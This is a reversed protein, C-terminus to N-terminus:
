PLSARRASCQGRQNLSAGRSPIGHCSWYRKKGPLPGIQRQVGQRLLGGVPAIVAEFQGAPAIVEFNTARKTLIAIQLRPMVDQGFVAQLTEGDGVVENALRDTVANVRAVLVDHRGVHPAIAIRLADVLAGRLFHLICRPCCLGKAHVDDVAEGAAGDPGHKIVKRRGRRLENVGTITLEGIAPVGNQIDKVLDADAEPELHM